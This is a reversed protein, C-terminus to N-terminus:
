QIDRKPAIITASSDQWNLIGKESFNVPECPDDEDSSYDEPEAAGRATKWILCATKHMLLAACSPKLDTVVGYESVGFETIFHLCINEDSDVVERNDTFLSVRNSRLSFLNRRRV